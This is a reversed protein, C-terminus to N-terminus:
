DVRGFRRRLSEGVAAKVVPDVLARTRTTIADDTLAIGKPEAKAIVIGEGGDARQVAPDASAGRALLQRVQEIAFGAAQADTDNLQSLAELAKAKAADVKEAAADKATRQVIQGNDADMGFGAPFTRLIQAAILDYVPPETDFDDRYHKALHDYVARRETEPVTIGDVGGALAKMSVVLGAWVVAAKEDGSHHILANAIDMGEGKEGPLYASVKVAGALGFFGRTFPTWAAEKAAVPTREPHAKEFPVAGACAMNFVLAEDDTGGDAGAKPETDAPPPPTDGAPTTDDGGAPAEAQAAAGDNNAANAASADPDTEAPATNPDPEPDALEIVPADDDPAAKPENGPENGPEGEADKVLIVIESPTKDGSMAITVRSLPDANKRLAELFDVSFLMGGKEFMGRLGKVGAPASMDLMEGAWDMIPATDIGANRAMILAHPNSPVPVASTELLEQEKFDYGYPRDADQVIEWRSPDFGVSQASMFGGKYMRYVTYGFPYLDMPTFEADVMLRGNEIACDICKAVPLGSHQHAWLMVPNKKFNDLKWGKPDITDRDRDVDATSITFQLRPTEGDVAMIKAAYFKSVTLGDPKKTGGDLLRKFETATILKRINDPM